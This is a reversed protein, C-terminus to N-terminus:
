LGDILPQGIAKAIHQELTERNDIIRQIVEKLAKNSKRTEESVAMRFGNLPISIRFNGDLRSQNCSLYYRNNTSSKFIMVSLDHNEKGEIPLHTTVENAKAKAEVQLVEIMQTFLQKAVVANEM